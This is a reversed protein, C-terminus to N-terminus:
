IHLGLLQTNFVYENRTQEEFKVILLKLIETHGKSAAVRIAEGSQAAVKAGSDLLIQVIKSQGRSSAVQLAGDRDKCEFDIEAHHEILLEVISWHGYKSALYLPTAQNMNIQNLDHADFLGVTIQTEIIEKVLDYVNWACALFMRNAPISICDLLKEQTVFDQSLNRAIPPLVTIWGEFEADTFRSSTEAISINYGNACAQSVHYPWYSFAYNLFGRDERAEWAKKQDISKL